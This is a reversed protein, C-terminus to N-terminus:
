RALVAKISVLGKSLMANRLSQGSMGYNSGGILTVGMWHISYSSPVNTEWPYFWITKLEEHPQNYNYVPSYYPCTHHCDSSALWLSLVLLRIQSWLFGFGEILRAILSAQKGLFRYPMLSVRGFPGDWFLTFAMSALPSFNSAFPFHIVDPSDAEGPLCALQIDSSRLDSDTSLFLKGDSAPLPIDLPAWDKICFFSLAQFILFPTGILFALLPPYVHLM